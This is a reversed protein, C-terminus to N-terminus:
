REPGRSQFGFGAERALVIAQSRGTVKLKELIISLYNRVTKESLSLARAIESNKRGQAVLELVGQERATLSCPLPGESDRSSQATAAPFSVVEDIFQQWAPESSFLVHNRSELPVFRARPILAAM